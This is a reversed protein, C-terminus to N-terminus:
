YRSISEIPESSDTSPSIIAEVQNSTENAFDQIENVKETLKDKLTKVEEIIKAQQNIETHKANSLINSVTTRTKADKITSYVISQVELMANIKSTINTELEKLMAIKKDFSAVDKELTKIEEVVHESASSTANLITKSLKENDNEENTNVKTENSKNTSKKKFLCLISTAFALFEGSIVSLLITDKHYLFWQGISQLYEIM